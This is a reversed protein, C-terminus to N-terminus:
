SRKRCISANAAWHGRLQCFKPDVRSPNVVAARGPLFSNALALLTEVADGEYPIEPRIMKKSKNLTVGARAV